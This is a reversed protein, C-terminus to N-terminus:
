NKELPRGKNVLRPLFIFVYKNSMSSLRKNFLRESISDTKLTSFFCICKSISAVTRRKIEKNMYNSRKSRIRDRFKVWIKDGRRKKM